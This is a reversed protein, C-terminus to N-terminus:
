QISMKKREDDLGVNERYVVFRQKPLNNMERILIATATKTRWFMVWEGDSIIVYCKNYRWM